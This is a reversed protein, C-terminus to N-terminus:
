FMARLIWNVALALGIQPLYMCRDARAFDGVQVIGIVPILMGVYWMWGMFIAPQKRRLAFVAWSIAILFILAAAAKWLSFDNGPHPYFAALGAPYFSQKIYVFYSVLANGIRSFLSYKEMPMLSMGQAFFAL